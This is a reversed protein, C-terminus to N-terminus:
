ASRRTLFQVWKRAVEPKFRNQPKTLVAEELARHAALLATLGPAEFIIRGKLGITTDSVATTTGSGSAGAAAEAVSVDVSGATSGSVGSAPEGAGAVRAGNLVSGCALGVTKGSGELSGHARAKEPAETSVSAGTSVSRGGCVGMAKSSTRAPVSFRYRIRSAMGREAIGITRPTKATM